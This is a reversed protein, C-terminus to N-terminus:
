FNDLESRRGRPDALIAVLDPLSIQDGIPRVMWARDEGVIVNQCAEAFPAFGVSEKPLLCIAWKVGLSAALALRGAVLAQYEAEHGQRYAGEVLEVRDDAKRTVLYSTMSAGDYATYVEDAAGTVRYRVASQWMARSRANTMPVKQSSARYVEAMEDLLKENVEAPALYEATATPRLLGRFFATSVTRWGQKAYHDNVGTGLYSWICNMAEMENIAMQLLKSSHGKARADPLTSVSGISGVKLPVGDRNRFWRVFVHVSSVLKGDEFAGVSVGDPADGELLTEFFPSEIGFVDVWLRVATPYEDRTLTRYEIM